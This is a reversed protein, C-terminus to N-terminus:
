PAKEIMADGGYELRDVTGAALEAKLAARTEAPLAIGAYFRWWADYYSTEFINSYRRPTPSNYDLIVVAEIYPINPFLRFGVAIAPDNTIWLREVPGDYQSHIPTNITRYAM